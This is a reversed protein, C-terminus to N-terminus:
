GEIRWSRRVARQPRKDRLELSLELSEYRKATVFHDSLQHLRAARRPRQQQAEGKLEAAENM